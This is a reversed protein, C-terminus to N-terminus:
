TDLSMYEIKEKMTMVGKYNTLKLNFQYAMCKSSALIIHYM